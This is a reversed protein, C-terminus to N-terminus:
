LRSTGAASDEYFPFLPGSRYQKRGVATLKNKNFEVRPSAKRSGCVDQLDVCSLIYLM